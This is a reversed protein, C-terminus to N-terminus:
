EEFVSFVHQRRPYVRWDEGQKEHKEYYYVILAGHGLTNCTSVVGVHKVDDTDSLKANMYEAIWKTVHPFPIGTKVFKGQSYVTYTTENM